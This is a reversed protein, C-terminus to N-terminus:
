FHNASVFGRRLSTWWFPRWDLNMGVGTEKQDVVHFRAVSIRQCPWEQGYAFTDLELHTHSKSLPGGSITPNVKPKGKELLSVGLHNAAPERLGRPGLSFLMRCIKASSEEESHLSSRPLSECGRNLEYAM